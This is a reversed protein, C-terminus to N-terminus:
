DSLRATSSASACTQSVPEHKGFSYSEGFVHNAWLKPIDQLQNRNGLPISLKLPCEGFSARWRSAALPWTAIERAALVQRHLYDHPSPARSPVPLSGLYAGLLGQPERGGGGEGGAGMFYAIIVCKTPSAYTNARPTELQCQFQTPPGREAVPVQTLASDDGSSLQQQAQESYMVAFASIQRM